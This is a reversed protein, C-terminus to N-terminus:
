MGIATGFVWGESKADYKVRYWDGKRGTVSVRTGQLVRAIVEGDRAPRSRVLAVDWAVTAKGSAPVVPEEPETTPKKSEGTGAFEVPYYVTYKAHEHAIGTLAVEGLNQELCAELAQADEKPLTTSKGTHVRTVRNQQFDLDFGLSFLGRAREAAECAALTAIRGRAVADFDIPDCVEVPKNGLGRCSAVAGSGITFPQKAATPEVELPQPAVPTSPTPGAGPDAPAGSLQANSVAETKEGPVSPVLRVGALHPWLIGIGFGVIAIAGVRGLRM